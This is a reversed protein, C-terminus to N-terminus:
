GALKEHGVDEVDQTVQKQDVKPDPTVTAEVESVADQKTLVEDM